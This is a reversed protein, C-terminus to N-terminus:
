QRDGRKNVVHEHIERVQAAMSDVAEGMHHSHQKSDRINENLASLEVRLGESVENSREMAANSRDQQELWQGQLRANEREHEERQHSERDKREERRDEREDAKRWREALSPWILTAFLVAVVVVTAWEPGAHAISTGLAGLLDDM